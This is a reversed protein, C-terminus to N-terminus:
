GPARRDAAAFASDEYVGVASMTEGVSGPFLAALGELLGDDRVEELGEGDVM